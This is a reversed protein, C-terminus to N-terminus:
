ASVSAIMESGKNRHSSANISLLVRVEAGAIWLMTFIRGFPHSVETAQLYGPDWPLM